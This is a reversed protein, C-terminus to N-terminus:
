IVDCHIIKRQRETLGQREIKTELSSLRLHGDHDNEILIELKWDNMVAPRTAVKYVKGNVRAAIRRSDM